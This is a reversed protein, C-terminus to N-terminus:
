CLQDVEPGDDDDYDDGEEEEFHAVV